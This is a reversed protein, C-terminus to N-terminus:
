DQVARDARARFHDGCQNLAFVTLFIIVAPVLVLLPADYLQNRGDSIMGGWSPTPSPIGMGLFSLSGEAVILAALVTPLYAVIPPLINPLVERIAIRARGAGMNTAALVFERTSWALTNARALRVFAPVMVTTLGALLTTYSPRLVSSLALLLILPPFALLADTLYMVVADAWGRFFGAILGLLTGIVMATLASVAGVLLSARSGYAARSLVSRGLQDFGLLGDLSLTPGSRPFGVPIGYGALPLLGSFAALFVVLGLWGVSLWMLPSRRRRVKPVVPLRAAAEEGAPLPVAHASM